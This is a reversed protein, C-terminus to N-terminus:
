TFFICAKEKIKEDIWLLSSANMGFLKSGGWCIQNSRQFMLFIECNLFVHIIKTNLRSKSLRPLYSHRCNLPLWELNWYWCYRIEWSSFYKFFMQGIASILFLRDLSSPISTNLIKWFIEALINRQCVNYKRRGRSGNDIHCFYILFKFVQHCCCCRKSDFVSM